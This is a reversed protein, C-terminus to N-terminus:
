PYEPVIVLGPGATMVLACEVRDVPLGTLIAAVRRYLNLQGAHKM